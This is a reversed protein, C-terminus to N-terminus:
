IDIRKCLHWVHGDQLLNVIYAVASSFLVGTNSWEKHCAVSHNDAVNQCLNAMWAFRKVNLLRINNNLWARTKCLIIKTSIPTQGPKNGCQPSSSRSPTEFCWGWSQKNLQKNLFCWLEADIAKALPIWRNGTFEGCLHGTVRFINGNSSTMRIRCLDDHDLAICM